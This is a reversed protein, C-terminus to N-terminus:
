RRDAVALLVAAVVLGAVFFLVGPEVVRFVVWGLTEVPQSAGPSWSAPGVASSGSRGAGVLREAGWQVFLSAVGLLAFGGVVRTLTREIRPRRSEDGVFVLPDSTPGYVTMETGKESYVTDVPEVLGADRLNSVHYHVNQVSTDIRDALESPTSPEDFLATLASRGNDSALADLVDGAEDDTMALVRTREDTTTRRDQIRDILGSM